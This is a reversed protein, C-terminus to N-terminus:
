IKELNSKHVFLKEVSKFRDKHNHTRTVVQEWICVFDEPAQLESILVINEKSKERVWDYFEDHNFYGEYGTTSKYPIDTYIVAGKIDKMEKYDKNVFMVDQIHERQKMINNISEIRYDRNVGTKTTIEGAYGGFYKANYSHLFGVVGLTFDDFEDKHNKIYNYEDRTYLKIERGQQLGKWLAILPSSLDNGIRKECKISDIINAGGVFCDIFMKSNNKEIINQIIPVIHKKIRAKSGMYKM